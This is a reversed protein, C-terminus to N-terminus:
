RGAPLVSAIPEQHPSLPFSRPGTMSVFRVANFRKFTDSYYGTRPVHGDDDTSRIMYDLADESPVRWM